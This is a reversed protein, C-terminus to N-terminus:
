TRSSASRSRLLLLLVCACACARMLFPALSVPRAHSAHPRLRLPLTTHTSLSTRQPDGSRTRPARANARANARAHAHAGPQARHGLPPGDPFLADARGAACPRERCELGRGGHAARLSCLALARPLPPTLLPLRSPLLHTTARSVLPSSTLPPERPSLPPPSHHSELRSPLLHTTARSALPSSTLPPERSSLPPPSHHSELRSPLLHTTARSVCAALESVRALGAHTHPSHARAHM